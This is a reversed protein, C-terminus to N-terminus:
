RFTYIIAIRIGKKPFKMYHPGSDFCAGKYKEPTIEAIKKKRSKDLLVTVADKDCDNLYVILQKHPYWHDVHTPCKESETNFTLNVCCRLLEQCDIKHKVIFDEFINIFNEALDSNYIPDSESKEEPRKIVVHGFFHNQDKEGSTTRHHLFFPFDGYIIAKEIFYISNKSLFNKDEILKM